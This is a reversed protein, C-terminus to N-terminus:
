NCGQFNLLVSVTDPSAVAQSQRDLVRQVEQEHVKSLSARSGFLARQMDGVKLVLFLWRLKYTMVM